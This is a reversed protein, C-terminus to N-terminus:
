LVFDRLRVLLGQPLKDRPVQDLADGAPWMTHEAM